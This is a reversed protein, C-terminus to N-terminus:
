RKVYEYRNTAYIKCSCQQNMCRYYHVKGKSMPVDIESLIAKCWPCLHKLLSRQPKLMNSLLNQHQILGVIYMSLYRKLDDSLSSGKSITIIEDIVKNTSEASLISENEGETNM